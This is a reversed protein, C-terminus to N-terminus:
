IDSFLSGCSNIRLSSVFIVKENPRFFGSISALGAVKIKPLLFTSLVFDSDELSEEAGFPGEVEETPVANVFVWLKPFFGGPEQIFIPNVKM